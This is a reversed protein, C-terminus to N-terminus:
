PLALLHIVEWYLHKLTKNKELIRQVFDPDITTNPFPNYFFNRAGATLALKLSKLTVNSELAYVIEAFATSPFLTQKSMLCLVPDFNM